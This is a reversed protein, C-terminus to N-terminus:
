DGMVMRFSDFTRLSRSSCDEERPGAIRLLLNHLVNLSAKSIIQASVCIIDTLDITPFVATM